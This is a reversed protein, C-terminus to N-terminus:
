LLVIWAVGVIWLPVKATLLGALLLALLVALLVALLGTAAQPSADITQFCGNKSGFFTAHRCAGCWHDCWHDRKTVVVKGDEVVEVRVSTPIPDASAAGTDRTSHRAGGVKGQRGPKGFPARHFFCEPVPGSEFLLFAPKVQQEGQEGHEGQEGQVIADSEDEEDDSTLPPNRSRNLRDPRTSGRLNPPCCCCPTPPCRPLCTNPRPTASPARPPWPWADNWPLAM